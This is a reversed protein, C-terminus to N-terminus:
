APSASATTGPQASRAQSHTGHGHDDMPNDVDRRFGILLEGPVTEQAPKKAPAATSAPGGLALLAVVGVILLPIRRTRNKHEVPPRPRL